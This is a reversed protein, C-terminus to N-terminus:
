LDWSKELSRLIETRKILCDKVEKSSLLIMIKWIFYSKDISILDKVTYVWFDQQLAIIISSNVDANDNLTLKDIPTDYNIEKDEKWTDNILLADINDRIKNM